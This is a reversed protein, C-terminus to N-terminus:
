DPSGYAAAAVGTGDPNRAGGIGLYGEYTAARKVLRGYM